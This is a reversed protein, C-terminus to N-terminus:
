VDNNSLYSMDFVDVCSNESKSATTIDYTYSHNAHEGPILAVPKEGPFKEQVFLFASNKELPADINVLRSRSKSILVATYPRSNM